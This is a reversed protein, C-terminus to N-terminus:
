TYTTTTNVLNLSNNNILAITQIYQVLEDVGNLEDEIQKKRIIIEYTEPKMEM